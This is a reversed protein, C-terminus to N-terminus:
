KYVVNRGRKPAEKAVRTGASGPCRERGGTPFRSGPIPTPGTESRAPAM